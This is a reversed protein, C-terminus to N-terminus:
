APADMEDRADKLLSRFIGMDFKTGPCSKLPKKYTLVNAEWHGIVYRIAIHYNEMWDLCLMIASTLQDPYAGMTLKDYDGVLCLGLSVKNWLAGSYRGTTHAGPCLDPRGRGITGDDSVVAHYGVAKFGRETVHNEHFIAAWEAGSKRRGAPDTASHHVIIYSPRNSTDEIPYGRGQIDLGYIGM